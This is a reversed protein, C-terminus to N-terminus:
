AMVVKQFDVTIGASHIERALAMKWAGPEDMQTYVVSIYDSPIDLDGKKLAFVCSRGLASVFYGLELIVNQRARPRLKDEEGRLAGVDDPTLLVVAFGVDANQEFKEIITRGKNAQEHLIIPELGIQQLFRAVTQKAEEDRGHVVFVRRNPISPTPQPDAAGAEVDDSDELKEQLMEMATQLKMVAESIAEQYGEIWEHPPTESMINLSVKFYFALVRYRNYELTDPGFVDVLTEDVKSQLSDLNNQVTKDWREIKVAELESIRRTLKPIAAKIQGTSLNAPVSAPPSARKRAM